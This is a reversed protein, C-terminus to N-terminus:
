ISDKPVMKGKNFIFTNIHKGTISDFQKVKGDFVDLGDLIEIKNGETILKGNSAFEQYRGNIRGDVTTFIEKIQNKPKEFYNKWEGDIKNQKYNGIQKYGGNEFFTEYVGYMEDLIYHEVIMKQGNEFYLLREGDLKGNKYNSTELIKGNEYYAEYKGHKTQMEKKLVSYKKIINGNADKETITKTSCASLTILIVLLFFYVSKM